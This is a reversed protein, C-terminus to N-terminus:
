KDKKRFGNIIFIIFFYIPIPLPAIGIFFYRDKNLRQLLNRKLLAYCYGGSYGDDFTYFKVVPYKKVRDPLFKVSPKEGFTKEWNECIFNEKPLTNRDWASLTSYYGLTKDKQLDYHFTKSRFDVLSAGIFVLFWFVGLILYIRKIGRAIDIAM